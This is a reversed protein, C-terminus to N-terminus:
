SRLIGSYIRSLAQANADWSFSAACQSVDHQSPPAALLEIVGRAIAEPTREVIRGAAPATVVERAGGIDPIVVPTGCAIAEVWANALGERESPLVMADAASLLLPLTEHGVSGLFQVRESVGCTEALLRLTEREPGDGALILRVDAPMNALSRIILDQGKIKILAGVCLIMRGAPPIDVNIAQRILSRADNRSTPRFLSRDLGTYHVRVGHPAVGLRVMDNGLAASVSLVVQAKSSARQMQRLPLSRSGWYHIDSGRAKVAFPLDLAKAIRAAAPGDPYFFQADVMDFPKQAHLRRALPLVSREILLPNFPGSIAPLLTFRPRFVDVSGMREHLSSRALVDYRKLRIPPVGIPNIVTVDWDGRDALAQMQRAVFRGFGPRESTPFLTSLSLLRRKM